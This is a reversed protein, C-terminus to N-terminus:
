HRLFTLIYRKTGRILWERLMFGLFQQTM